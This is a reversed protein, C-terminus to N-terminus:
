RYRSPKHQKSETIYWEGRIHTMKKHVLSHISGNWISFYISLYSFLFRSLFTKRYSVFCSFVSHEPKKHHLYFMKIAGNESTTRFLSLIVLSFMKNKAYYDTEIGIRLDALLLESLISSTTESIIMKTIEITLSTHIQVNWRQYPLLLQLLKGFSWFIMSVRAFLIDDVFVICCSFFEHKEPMSALRWGEWFYDIYGGLFRIFSCIIAWRIWTIDSSPSCSPVMDEWVGECFCSFLIEVQRFTASRSPITM